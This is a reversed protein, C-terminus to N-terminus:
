STYNQEEEGEERDKAVARKLMHYAVKSLPELTYVLDTSDDFTFLEGFLRFCHTGDASNPGDESICSFEKGNGEEELIIELKEAAAQIREAVTPEPIPVIERVTWTAKDTLNAGPNPCERQAEHKAGEKSTALVTYKEYSTRMTGITVEYEKMPHTSMM